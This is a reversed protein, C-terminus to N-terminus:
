YHGTLKAKIRQLAIIHFSILITLINKSKMELMSYETRRKKL